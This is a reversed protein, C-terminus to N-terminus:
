EYYHVSNLHEFLDATQYARYGCSVDPIVYQLYQKVLKSAFCNSTLKITPVKEVDFFRNAIVFDSTYIKKQVYKNIRPCTARRCRFYNCTRIWNKQSHFEM